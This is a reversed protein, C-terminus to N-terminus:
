SMAAIRHRIYVYIEVLRLHVICIPSHEVPHQITPPSKEKKASSKEKEPSFPLPLFSKKLFTKAAVATLEGKKGLFRVRLAELEGPDAVANLAELAEQRIKELQEKM